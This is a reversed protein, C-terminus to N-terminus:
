LVPLFWGTQLLEGQRAQTRIQLTQALEGPGCHSTLSQVASDGHYEGSYATGQAPYARLEAGRSIGLSAERQEQGPIRGM